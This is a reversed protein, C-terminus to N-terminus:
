RQLTLSRKLAQRDTTGARGTASVRLRVRRADRLRRRAAKTFRVNFLTRGKFSRGASGRAVAVRRAGRTLGYRRATANDVSVDV